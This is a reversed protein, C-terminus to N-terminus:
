VVPAKNHNYAYHIAISGAIVAFMVCMFLVEHIQYGLLEAIIKAAAMLVLVFATKELIPYKEILKIFSQATFRMALIGLVAGTILVWAVNSVSLAVAISDISFMIDMLEVAIVTRWLSSIKNEKSINSTNEQDRKFFLETIGLYVLYAAAVWKVWLHTMLWVGAFIVIVRFVYAGIIGYHLAKNQDEKNRLRGKVLAALALANDVSLIGELFILYVVALVNSLTIHM